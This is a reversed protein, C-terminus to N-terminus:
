LSKNKLAMELKKNTGGRRGGLNHLVFYDKAKGKKLTATPQWLGDM